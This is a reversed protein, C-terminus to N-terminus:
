SLTEIWWCRYLHVPWATHGMTLRQVASATTFSFAWLLPLRQAKEQQRQSSLLLLRSPSFPTSSSVSWAAPSPILDVPGSAVWTHGRTHTHTQTHTYISMWTRSSCSYLHHLRLLTDLTVLPLKCHIFGPLFFNSSVKFSLFFSRLKSKHFYWLQYSRKSIKLEFYM